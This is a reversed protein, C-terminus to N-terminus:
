KNAIVIIAGGLLEKRMEVANFRRSLLEYLLANRPWRLYTGYLTKFKLGSKGSVIYALIGLIHKLYFSVLSRALSNDPKGLDVIIFKGNKRLIRHSESIADELCIADRLSYGCMVVDVSNERFPMHEFVGCSLGYYNKLDILKKANALMELLPDYMIVSINGNMERLAVKTMNGFGSGADVVFDGKSIGSSIGINRYKSGQGLSIVNNVRDYVPIIERLVGIVEKWYNQGLGSL